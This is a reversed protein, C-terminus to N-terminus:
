DRNVGVFVSRLGDPKAAAVERRFSGPHEGPVTSGRRTITGGPASKM